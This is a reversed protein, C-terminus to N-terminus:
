RRENWMRVNRRGTRRARRRAREDDDLGEDTPEIREDVDAHADDPEAWEFLCYNASAVRQCARQLQEALELWADSHTREESDLLAQTRHVHTSLDARFREIELGAAMRALRWACHQPSEPLQALEGARRVRSLRRQGKSTLLWTPIGHRRSREVWGAAHMALLRASIQRAAGSRRPLALHELITWTPVAPDERAQHRSARELAALVLEDSAPATATSPTQPDRDPM